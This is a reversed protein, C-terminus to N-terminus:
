FLTQPIENIGTSLCLHPRDFLIECVIEVVIKRSSFMLDGPIRPVPRLSSALYRSHKAAPLARQVIPPSASSTAAGCLSRLPSRGATYEHNRIDVSVAMLFTCAVGSAIDLQSARSDHHPHRVTTKDGSIERPLKASFASMGACKYRPAPPFLASPSREPSNPRTSHGWPNCYGPCHGGCIRLLVPPETPV